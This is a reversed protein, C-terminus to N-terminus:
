GLRLPPEVPLPSDQHTVGPGFVKNPDHDFPFVGRFSLGDCRQKAVDQAVLDALLAATGAAEALRGAEGYRAPRASRRALRGCELHYLAGNKKGPVSSLAAMATALPLFPAFGELFPFCRGFTARTRALALGAFLRENGFTLALALGARTCGFVAAGFCSGRLDRATRGEGTGCGAPRGATRRPAGAPRGGAAGACRGRRELDRTVSGEPGGAAHNGWPSRGRGDDNM